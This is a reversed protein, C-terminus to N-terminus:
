YYKEIDIVGDYVHSAEGTMFISNGPGNWFIELFGGPLHVKVKNNLLGRKIGIAVAACAGTGCSKTEGCGREYVRLNINNIDIKEMFGVNVKKPFLKHNEILSGIKDIQLDNLNRTEILCHPNGLSVIGLKIIKEKIYINYYNKIENNKNIFPIEKPSFKPEGMDVSVLNNKKINVLIIGKKTNLKITNKKTLNNKKLFIAVCRAGNGCQEVEKGNSNFIRYNFDYEKKIDKKSEILLLQDFGIGTYRNSIQQIIESSIFFEKKKTSDIIVFDNSLGHMKAFKM